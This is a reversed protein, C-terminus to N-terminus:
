IYERSTTRYLKSAKYFMVFIIFNHASWEGIHCSIQFLAIDCLVTYRVSRSIQVRTMWWYAITLFNHSLLITIIYNQSFFVFFSDWQSNHQLCRKSTRTTFTHVSLFPNWYKLLFQCLVNMLQHSIEDSIRWKATHKDSTKIAPWYVVSFM